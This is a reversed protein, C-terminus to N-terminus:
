QIIAIKCILQRWPKNIDQAKVFVIGSRPKEINLEFELFGEAPVEKILVGDTTFVKVQWQGEQQIEVFFKGNGPNPIVRLSLAAPTSLSATGAPGPFTGRQLSIGGSYNGIALDPFSDNNLDSWAPATRIGETIYMFHADRLIFAQSTDPSIGTYYKLLGTESGVLLRLEGSPKRFFCPVSYGKYSLDADTVNVKGFYDTVLEFVPQTATGTNRFWSLKGNASGSVLDTL